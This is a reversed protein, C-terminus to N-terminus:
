TEKVPSWLALYYLGKRSALSNSALIENMLKLFNYRNLFPLVNNNFNLQCLWQRKETGYNREFGFYLETSLKSKTQKTYNWKLDNSVNHANLMRVLKDPLFNFLLTKGRFHKIGNTLLCSLKVHHSNKKKNLSICFSPCIKTRTERSRFDKCRFNYPTKDM